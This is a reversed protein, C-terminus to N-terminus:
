KLQKFLTDLDEEDFDVEQFDAPVYNHQTHDVSQNSINLLEGKFVALLDDFESANTYERVYSCDMILENDKIYVNFELPHLREAEESRMHRELMKGKGLLDSELDTSKGLYNFLIDARYEFKPNKDGVEVLYRCMGFTVGKSPISRMKNKIYQLNARSDRHETIELFIPYLSTFWGVSNHFTTQDDLPERGHGETEIILSSFGKWTHMAKILASILIENVKADFTQPIETRVKITLDSDLKYKIRVVDREQYKKDKRLTDSNQNAFQTVWYKYDQKFGVGQAYNELKQSWQHYSISKAGLRIEKDNQRQSIAKSLEDILIYWSVQDVVLHHAVLILSSKGIDENDFYLCKFLHGKNLKTSACVSNITSQIFVEEETPLVDGMDVISLYSTTNSGAKAIPYNDTEFELRLSEHRQIIAVIADSLIKHNIGKELDFRVGVHWHGPENKFDNLYWRQIPTLKFEGIFVEQEKSEIKFEVHQALEAITQSKFIENAPFKLGNNQARGNIQISLISDGGLSFFNDYISIPKISLVEEWIDVLAKEIDNRPDRYTNGEKLQRSLDKNELIKYDYKGNPLKPLEDLKVFLSPIMYEPLLTSLHNKIKQTDVDEESSFYVIISQAKNILNQEKDKIAVVVVEEFDPISQMVNQIETLEVRFGRIKIQHDVRGLFEVVGNQRMIGLDGSRYLLSPYEQEFNHKVFKETTLDERNIYGKTIGRGGIYIEGPIGRPVMHGYDDVIFIDTSSIAAGIPITTNLDNITIEYGTCWVSGETPGYENYLKADPLKQFHDICMRSHCAEGAVIVCKLSRLNEIKAQDLLIQYLSPLMLTHSVKHKSIIRSLLDMDQEIREPTLVLNGGRCLTWFLGVMSSDFAFSSLLLFCEPLSTYFDDRVTTSHIINGHSVMVGKPKGSSGSTFILYANDDKDIQINLSSTEQHKSEPISKYYIANIGSRSFLDEQGVECLVYDVSAENLMYAIRDIPYDPDLPMYVAGSMLVGLIGAVMEVSRNTCVAVVDGKCVGISTLHAAIKQGGRVLEDYTWSASNSSVALENGRLKVQDEILTHIGTDIPYPNDNKHLNYIAEIEDPHALKFSSLTSNHNKTIQELLYAYHEHMREITGRDFLDTAYEITTHCDNEDEAVYLTLDFKSVGLDFTKYSIDFGEWTPKEPVRHYLFMVQFIPNINADRNVGLEKVLVEFPIEKHEFAQLVDNRVKVLYDSFSINSDLKLRMVITDNFFGIVKELSSKSRNSIPTGVLIDDQRCYRQLLIYFVALYFVFPTTNFKKCLERVRDAIPKDIPYTSFAGKHSPIKPRKHDFPLNIIEPANALREVWYDLQGQDIDKNQEWNAFDAYQIGPAALQPEANHISANYIHALEERFIRMSWKDTIIHHMNVVLVYTDNRLDLLGIKILPGNSLDFYESGIKQAFRKIEQEQEQNNSIESIEFVFDYKPENHVIQIPEEYSSEFTTRLIDHRKVVELISDKFIPVNIVGKVDYIEAYNYFTNKPYLKQLMWLRKQGYSLRKPVDAEMTVIESSIQRSDSKISKSQRLWRALLDKKNIGSM